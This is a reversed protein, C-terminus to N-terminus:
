ARASRKIWRLLDAVKKATDIVAYAVGVVDEASPAPKASCADIVEQPACKILAELQARATRVAADDGKLFAAEVKALQQQIDNANVKQQNDNM